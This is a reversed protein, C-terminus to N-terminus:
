FNHIFKYQIRAEYYRAHMSRVTSYNINNINILSKLFFILYNESTLHLLFGFTVYSIVRKLSNEYKICTFYFAYTRVPRSKISRSKRSSHHRGSPPRSPVHSRQYKETAERQEERRRSLIQQRRKEERQQELKRKTAQARISNLLFYNM